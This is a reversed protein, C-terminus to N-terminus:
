AVHLLIGPLIEKLNLVDWGLFRQHEETKSIDRGDQQRERQGARRQLLPPDQHRRVHDGAPQERRPTVTKHSRGEAQLVGGRLGLRHLSQNRVTQGDDVLETEAQEFSFYM